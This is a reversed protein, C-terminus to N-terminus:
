IRHKYKEPIRTVGKIGYQKELNVAQLVKNFRRKELM